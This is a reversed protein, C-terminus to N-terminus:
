RAFAARPATLQPVLEEVIELSADYVRVISPQQGAALDLAGGPMGCDWDDPGGPYVDPIEVGDVTIGFTEDLTFCGAPIYRLRVGLRRPGDPPTSIAIELRLDHLDALTANPAPPPPADDCAVAAAAATAAILWPLARSPLV